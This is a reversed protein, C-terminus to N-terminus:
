MLAIKQVWVNLSLGESRRFDGFVYLFVSLGYVQKGSYFRESLFWPLTHM